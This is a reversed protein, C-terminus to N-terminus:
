PFKCLDHAKIFLLTDFYNMLRLVHVMSLYFALPCYWTNPSHASQAIEAINRCIWFQELFIFNIKLFNLRM